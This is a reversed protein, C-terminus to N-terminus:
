CQGGVAMAKLFRQVYDHRKDADQEKALATKFLLVAQDARGTWAKVLSLYGDVPPSQPDVKRRALVIPERLERFAREEGDAAMVDFNERLNDLKLFRLGLDDLNENGTLAHLFGLFTDADKPDFDLAKRLTRAAEPYRQCGLLAEGLQQCLVADEGLLDRYAELHKLAKDWQNLQN